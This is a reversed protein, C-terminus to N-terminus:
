RFRGTATASTGKEQREASVSTGEEQQETSAVTNRKPKNQRHRQAGRRINRPHTAARRLIECPLMVGFVLLPREKGLKDVEQGRPRNNGHTVGRGEICAWLNSRRSRGFSKRGSGGAQRGARKSGAGREGRGAVSVGRMGRLM